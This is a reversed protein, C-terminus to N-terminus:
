KTDRIAVIGGVVGAYLTKGDPGLYVPAYHNNYLIGTGALRSYVVAGSEFDLATFYWADTNAPGKPKTYSYILGDAVSMKNVVSPAVVEENTWVTRCGYPEVDIRAMGPKTTNGHTTADASSYGYNNPVIISRDTAILSQENSSQGQFVPVICHLRPGTVEKGRHYVLVNIKPQANDTITVYETGMLTPTSGSGIDVQGSKIHTGADYPERWTVVPKGLADADFRYMAATSVIFVGSNEDASHGNVILEGDPLQYEGILAGTTGNVTEILGQKTTLWIRGSFDPQLAQITHDEPIELNGYTADHSLTTSTHSIVWITRETTGAIVRGFNDLYFYVGAPRFKGSIPETVVPPPLPLAFLPKLTDAELLVMSISVTGAALDVQVAIAILLGDDTFVMPSVSGPATQSGLYSSFVEPENGLPGGTFYTDSAYTDDHVAGWSGPAMFPNQPIPLASIPKVTAPNGIYVPAPKVGPFEPIKTQAVLFGAVGVLVALTRIARKRM